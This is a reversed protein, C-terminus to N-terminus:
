RLILKRMRIEKVGPGITRTWANEEEGTVVYGRALWWSYSRWPTGQASRSTGLTVAKKAGDRAEREVSAVLQGGIGRGQSDGRVAIDVLELDEGRDEVTVYAVVRRESEAVIVEERGVRNPDTWAATLRDVSNFLRESLPTGFGVEDAANVSTNACDVISPIDHRSARRVQVKIRM